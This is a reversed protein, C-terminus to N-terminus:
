VGAQTGFFHCLLRVCVLADRRSQLAMTRYLSCMWVLSVCECIRTTHIYVSCWHILAYLTEREQLIWCSSQLQIGLYMCSPMVPIFAINHHPRSWTCDIKFHQQRVWNEKYISYIYVVVSVNFMQNFSDNPHQAGIKNIKKKHNSNM